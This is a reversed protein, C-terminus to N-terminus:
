SRVIWVGPAGRSRGSRWCRVKRPPTGPRWRSPLTWPTPDVHGLVGLEVIVRRVRQFGRQHQQDRILDVLSNCLAVEHM